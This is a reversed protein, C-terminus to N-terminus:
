SMNHSDTESTRKAAFAEAGPLYDAERFGGPQRVGECCGELAYGQWDHRKGGSVNSMTARQSGWKVLQGVDPPPDFVFLSLIEFGCWVDYEIM